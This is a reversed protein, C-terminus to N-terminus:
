RETKRGDGVFGFGAVSQQTTKETVSYPFFISFARIQLAEKDFLAMNQQCPVM